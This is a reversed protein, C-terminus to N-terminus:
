LTSEWSMKFNTLSCGRCSFWFCFMPSCHSKIEEMWVFTDHKTGKSAVAIYYLHCFTFFAVLPLIPSSGTKYQSCSQMLSLVSSYVRLETTLNSFGNGQAGLCLPFSLSLFILTKLSWQLLNPLFLCLMKLALGWFVLLFKGNVKIPNLIYGTSELIWQQFKDSSMSKCLGDCFKCFIVKAAVFIDLEFSSNHM